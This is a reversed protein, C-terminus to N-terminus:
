PEPITKNAIWFNVTAPTNKQIFFFCRNLSIEGLVKVSILENNRKTKNHARIFMPKFSVFTFYNELNALSEKMFM